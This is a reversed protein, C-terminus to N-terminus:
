SIQWFRPTGHCVRCVWPRRGQASHHYQYNTVVWAIYLVRSQFGNLISCMLITFVTGMLSLNAGVTELLAGTCPNNM